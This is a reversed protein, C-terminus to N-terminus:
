CLADFIIALHGARWRVGTVLLAAGLERLLRWARGGRLLRVYRRGRRLQGRAQVVHRQARRPGAADLLAEAGHLRRPAHGRERVGRVRGALRALLGALRRGRGLRAARAAVAGLAVGAGGAVFAEGGGALEALMDEGVGALEGEGAVEALLLEVGFEFEDAMTQYVTFSSSESAGDATLGEISFIM